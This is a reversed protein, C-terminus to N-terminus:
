WDYWKIRYMRFIRNSGKSWYLGNIRNCGNIRDSRYLRNYRDRRYVGKSRTFGYLSGYEM